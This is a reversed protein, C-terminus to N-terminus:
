EFEKLYVAYEVTARMPRDTTMTLRNGDIVTTGLDIGKREITTQTAVVIANDPLDGDLGGEAVMQRFMFGFQNQFISDILRESKTIVAEAEEDPIELEVRDGRLYAALDGRTFEMRFTAGIEFQGLEPTDDDIFGQDFTYATVSGDTSIAIQLRSIENDGVRDTEQEAESWEMTGDETTTAFRASSTSKTGEFIGQDNRRYEVETAGIELILQGQDLKEYGEIQLEDTHALSPIFLCALLAVLTRPYRNM